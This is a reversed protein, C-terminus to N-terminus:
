PPPLHNKILYIHHQLPTAILSSFKFFEMLLFNGLECIQAFPFHFVLPLLPLPMHQWESALNYSLHKMSQKVSTQVM